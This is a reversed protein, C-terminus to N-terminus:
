DDDRVIVLVYIFLYVPIQRTNDNTTRNKADQALSLPEDSPSITTQDFEAAVVGTSGSYAIESENLKRKSSHFVVMANWDRSRAPSPM